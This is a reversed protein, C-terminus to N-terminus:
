AAMQFVIHRIQGEKRGSNIRKILDHKMMNLEMMWASTAVAVFLTQDQLGAPTTVAAIGPGVREAWDTLVSATALNKGLGSTDLYRALVDGMPQPAVNNKRARIRSV